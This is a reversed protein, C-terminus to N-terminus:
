AAREAAFLPRLAGKLIKGNANRPLTESVFRIEVPVKFAALHRRVWDQLEAESAREGPALHVVAV